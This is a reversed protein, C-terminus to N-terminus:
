GRIAAERAERERDRYLQGCSRRVTTPKRGHAIGARIDIAKHLRRIAAACMADVKAALNM